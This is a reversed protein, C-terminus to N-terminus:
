TNTVPQDTNIYLASRMRSYLLKDAISRASAQSSYSPPEVQRLSATSMSAAATATSNSKKAAKGGISSNAVSQSSVSQLSGASPFSAKLVSLAVDPGSNPPQGVSGSNGTQQERELALRHEMESVARVAADAAALLSTTTLPASPKSATVRPPASSSRKNSSSRSAGDDSQRAADRGRTFYTPAFTCARKAEKEM